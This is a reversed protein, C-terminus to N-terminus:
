NDTPKKHKIFLIATSYILLSIFCIPFLLDGTLTYLTQEDCYYVTQNITGRENVDLTTVINGRTDIVASIGSNASRVLYRSNEVSRFVGHALHQSMAPSDKLWSDNTVEVLAEAGDLVSQRSLEPNISEFCIISGIKGSGVEMIATDNGPVYDTEIEFTLETLVPFISSLLEKYPMYEGFPVLQRKAYNGLVDEHNILVANNTHDGDNQLLVGALIPTDLETSLKKYQKLSGENRYVKPVASEPWIILDTDDTINEKTLTSYVDLCTKDGDSAWKDEQSVSGQASLVKIQGTTSQVNLRIIGFGLNACFISAAVIAAVKRKKPPYIICLTILANILLILMDVGDIGFLSAGQILATAKYQGLSIRSWPFSLESTATIKQSALIGIICVFSLFLPNENVKKALKCLLLPICWLLGHLASIGFWALAVVALSGGHSIGAFDLPYFWLFWYYICAHYIFGFLFGRSFCTRWKDGSHNFVLYFLPVFSVWSLLFLSEFTLPLASLVASIFILLWPKAILNKFNIKVAEKQKKLIKDCFNIKKWLFM